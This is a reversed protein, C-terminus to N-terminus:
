PGTPSTLVARLEAIDATVVTHPSTGAHRRVAVLRAREGTVEQWIRFAPFEQQLSALDSSTAATDQTAPATM